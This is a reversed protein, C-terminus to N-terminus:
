KALLDAGKRRPKLILVEASFDCGKVAKQMARGVSEAISREVCPAAMTPGAGSLYVGSAGADLASRRIQAYRRVFPKRYPEHLRDEMLLGLEEGDGAVLADIVLPVRTLNFVADRHPVKSPIARRAKATPLSYDPVLFAIHWSRHPAYQHILVRSPIRAAATLSGLLAPAVNDPHGEIETMASLLDETSLPEGLMANAALAGAVVATASSGLGRAVPVKGHAAVEVNLRTRGARKCVRDMAAFFLNGGVRLGQCTGHGVIKRRGSRQKKVLFVNLLNLAMGLGDYGPGLNATTAPVRVELISPNRAM